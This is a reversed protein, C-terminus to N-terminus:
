CHVGHVANSRFCGLLLAVFILNTRNNWIFYIYFHFYFVYFFNFYFFSFSIKLFIPRIIGMFTNGRLQKLIKFFSFPPVNGVENASVFGQLQGEYGFFEVFLFPYFLFPYRPAV